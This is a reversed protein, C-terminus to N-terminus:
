ANLTNEMEAIWNLMDDKHESVYDVYLKSMSDLDESATLTFSGHGVSSKGGLHGSEKLLNLM